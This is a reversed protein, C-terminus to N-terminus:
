AVQAMDGQIEREWDNSPDQKPSTETSPVRFLNFQGFQMEMAYIVRSFPEIFM